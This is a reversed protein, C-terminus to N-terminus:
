LTMNTHTHVTVANPLPVVGVCRTAVGIVKGDDNYLVESAPTAPFIDVGLEEAQEGLWVALQSLSSACAGGCVTDGVLWHYRWLCVCPGVQHHLKRRQAAAPDDAAQHRLSGPWLLSCLCTLVCSPSCRTGLCGHSGSETLYMM